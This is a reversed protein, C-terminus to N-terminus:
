LLRADNFVDRLPSPVARTRRLPARARAAPREAIRTMCAVVRAISALKEWALLGDVLSGWLVPVVQGDEAPGASGDGGRRGPIRAGRARAVKPQVGHM